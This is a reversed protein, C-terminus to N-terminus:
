NCFSSFSGTVSPKNWQLTDNRGTTCFYLFLKYISTLGATNRPSCIQHQNPDTTFSLNLHMRHTVDPDQDLVLWVVQRHGASWALLGDSPSSCLHFAIGTYNMF